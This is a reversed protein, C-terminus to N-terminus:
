SQVPALLARIVQRYIAVRRRRLERKHGLLGKLWEEILQQVYSVLLFVRLFGAALAGHHKRFYYLKSQQFHIQSRATVQETSKGGHHMIEADGMYVVKWGANKARKCLDVEESYMVFQEDLGGIQEYVQRRIMLASGQMWDVEATAADPIDKAYFRDLLRRPAFRQLWTSEFIATTLTPFRRKSSQTSGDSNLTHPGVIGVDIHQDLYTAMQQLADGIVETDPNLLLLYRGKAAALGINNGRTFGINSTQALLTVWGHDTALM